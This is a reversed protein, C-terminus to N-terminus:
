TGETAYLRKRAAKVADSLTQLDYAGHHRRGNIFFTPTGVAGSAAAQEVDEAIRSAAARSRLADTFRVTDLGLQEAYRVVDRPSLADQHALLLDHMPWFAGQQAVFCATTGQCQCVGFSASVTMCPVNVTSHSPM